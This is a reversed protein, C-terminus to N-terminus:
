LGDEERCRDKRCSFCLHFRRLPARDQRVWRPEVRGSGVNAEASRRVRRHPRDSRFEWVIDSQEEVSKVLLYFTHLM